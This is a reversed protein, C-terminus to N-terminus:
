VYGTSRLFEIWRITNANNLNIQYKIPMSRYENVWGISVLRSLNSKVDTRKLGTLASIAYVTLRRDHVKALEAIIRIRGISGLAEDIERRITGYDTAM